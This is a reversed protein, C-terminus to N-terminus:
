MKLIDPDCRAYSMTAIEKHLIEFARDLRPTTKFGNRWAGFPMPQPIM